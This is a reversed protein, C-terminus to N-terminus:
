GRERCSARGIERNLSPVSVAALKGSTRLASNLVSMRHESTLGQRLSLASARCARSCTHALETTPLTVQSSDTVTSRKATPPALTNAERALLLGCIVLM